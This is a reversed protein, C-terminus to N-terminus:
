RTPTPGPSAQQDDPHDDAQVKWSGSADQILTYVNRDRSQESTGDDFTTSWTEWCTATATNGNTTIPGWEINVLKIATVGNSALDQNTQVQENYFEPTSSAQMATPDNNALAQMQAQDVQQIVQQIAQQTASDAPTGPQQATTPAAAPASTAGASTAAGAGSASSVTPSTRAATPAPTSASGLRGIVLGIVAVVLVLLVVVGVIVGGRGGGPKKTPPHATEWDSANSPLM